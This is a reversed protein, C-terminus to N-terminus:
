MMVCDDASAAASHIRLVKKDHFRALAAALNVSTTTKGVGGKQAAIAIVAAQRSGRARAPRRPAPKNGAIRHLGRKLLNRM